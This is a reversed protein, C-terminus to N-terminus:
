YYIDIAYFSISVFRGSADVATAFPWYSTALTLNLYTGNNANYLAIPGNWCGVAMYGFLDITISFIWNCVTDYKGVLTGTAKSAVVISTGISGYLNGNFYILAYDPYNGALTMFRQFNSNTDFVSLPYSHITSGTCVYFLSSSSDYYISRYYANPNNYSANLNFNIDTKYFYYNASFYFYGNIFKLSFSNGYTLNYYKQYNWDQNFQVLRSTEYDLVYYTPIGNTIVQEFGTVQSFAKGVYSIISFRKQYNAFM